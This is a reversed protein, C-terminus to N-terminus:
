SRRLLSPATRAALRVVESARTGRMLQPVSALAALVILGLGLGVAGRNKEAWM